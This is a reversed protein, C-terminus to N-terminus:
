ESDEVPILHYRRTVIQTLQSADFADLFMEAEVLVPDRATATITLKTVLNPNLGLAECLDRISQHSGTIISM